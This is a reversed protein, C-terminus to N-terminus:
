LISLSTLGIIVGAAIAFGSRGAPGLDEVMVAPIMLGVSVLMIGLSSYVATNFNIDEVANNYEDSTDYEDRDIKILRADNLKAGMILVIGVLILVLSVAMLVKALPPGERRERRM